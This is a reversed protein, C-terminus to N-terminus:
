CTRTINVDLFLWRDFDLKNLANPWHFALNCQLFHSILPTLNSSGVQKFGPCTHHLIQQLSFSSLPQFFSVKTLRAISLVLGTVSLEPCFPYTIFPNLQIM